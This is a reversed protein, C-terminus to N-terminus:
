QYVTSDIFTNTTLHVTEIVEGPEKKRSYENTQLYTEKWCLRTYPVHLKKYDSKLTEDTISQSHNIKFAKWSSKYKGIYKGNRINEM